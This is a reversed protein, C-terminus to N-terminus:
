NGSGPLSRTVPLSEGTWPFHGWLRFHSGWDVPLSRVVPLSQAVPLSRVVPLSEWDGLLSRAVPLWSIHEIACHFLQGKYKHQINYAWVQPVEKHCNAVVCARPTVIALPMTKYGLLCSKLKINATCTTRQHKHYKKTVIQLLAHAYLLMLSQRTCRSLFDLFCRM